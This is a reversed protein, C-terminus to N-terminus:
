SGVNKLSISVKHIGQLDETILDTNIIIKFNNFLRGISIILKNLSNIAFEMIIEDGEADSAEPSIYTYNGTNAQVTITELDSIFM